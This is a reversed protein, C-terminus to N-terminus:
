DLREKVAQAVGYPMSAASAIEEITARRIDEVSDFQELLLRQRSPGIGPVSALISATGDRSVQEWPGEEASRQGKKRVRQLGALIRNFLSRQEEVLPAYSYYYAGRKQPARNLVAGLINAGAHQLNFIAQRAVDRRTKGSAVVLVVGDVRRSLIVADTVFAAPPSDLIVVDAADKLSFLVQEFPPSGLLESPNTPASGATLLQLGEIELDRVPIAKGPDPRRLQDSLGEDNPLHFVTHLVPKRMDCDVIITKQGNRALAIGLNIVTASKGDGPAPSTVLISKGPTDMLIFEINNRIMRYSEAAPSFPNEVVVMDERIDDGGVKGVSGLPMLTVDQGIDDLTKLTDDLFELLFIIGIALVFGAASAIITNLRINPRIRSSKARASDIVTIYNASEENGVFALFRAYNNEWDLVKSELDNIETQIAAKEEPTQASALTITLEKIRSDSVEIDSQLEQLRQQVFSATSDDGQNQLSAPSLLILQQALEGAILAAEERSSAEVSIELLQTNPVLKVRVRKRLSEWSYDLNLSEIAAELVPQRRTIDAYTLALRESTQIDRTDLQTAQLSQGVIISTTAQYVPEMRLSVTYGIGAAALTLLVVLWWRKLVLSIVQRLELFDNM